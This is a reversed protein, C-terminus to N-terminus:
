SENKRGVKNSALGIFTKTWSDMYQINEVFGDEGFLDRLGFPDYTLEEEDIIKEIRKEMTEGIVPSYLQIIKWNRHLTNRTEPKSFKEYQKSKKQNEEAHQVLDEILYIRDESLFPFLKKATKIGIREIGPIDDSTDGIISKTLGWNVPPIGVEERMIKQNVIVKKVPLYIICHEDILQWLDRDSSVIVKYDDSYKSCLYAILDDAECTDAYLSFVPLCDLYEMIRKIQYALNKIVENEEGYEYERNLRPKKRSDKYKKFIDRRRKGSNLGEWCVFIKQPKFQVTLIKLDRLFGGVGGVPEGDPNMAPSVRYNRKFINYADFILIRM